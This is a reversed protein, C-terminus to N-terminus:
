LKVNLVAAAAAVASAATMFTALDRWRDESFSTTALTVMSPLTEGRKCIQLTQPWKPPNM